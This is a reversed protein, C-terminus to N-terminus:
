IEMTRLRKIFQIRKREVMLQNLTMATLSALYTMALEIKITSRANFKFIKMLNQLKEQMKLRSSILFQLNCRISVKFILKAKRQFM